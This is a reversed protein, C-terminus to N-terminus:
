NTQVDFIYGVGYVNNISICNSISLYKRLRSVFVDLSRGLFYDNKGWLQILIEERKLIRNENKFLYELLEAEKPTLMFKKQNGISLKLSDKHFTVDGRKIESWYQIGGNSNRKIIIKIRLILEDIDFPKTIYDDAGIKLGYLRDSRENRATL